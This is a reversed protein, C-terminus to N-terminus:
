AAPKDVKDKNNFVIKLKDPSIEVEKGAKDSFVFIKCEEPLSIIGTEKLSLIFKELIEEGLLTVEIKIKM